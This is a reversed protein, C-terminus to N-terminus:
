EFINEYYELLSNVNNGKLVEDTTCISAIYKGDEAEEGRLINGISKTRIDYYRSAEEGSFFYKSEGEFVVKIPRINRKWANFGHLVLQINDVQYGKTDDIRDISIALRMDKGSDIYKSWMDMLIDKSKNVYDVYDYIPLYDLHVYNKNTYSPKGTCRKVIGSYKGKMIEDLDKIGTDILGYYARRSLWSNDSLYRYFTAGSLGSKTCIDKLSIKMTYYDEVYEKFM